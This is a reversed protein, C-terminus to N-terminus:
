VLDVECEILALQQEMAKALAKAASLPRVMVMFEDILGCENDRVFDCGQIERDGIRAQFVFAHHRGDPQSIENIYRFDDFVAFAGRLIAAAVGRGTYPRFAVPSVFTVDEALLATAAEADRAEVAARFPHM